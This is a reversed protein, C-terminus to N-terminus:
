RDNNIVDDFYMKLIEVNQGYQTLSLMMFHARLLLALHSNHFKFSFRGDLSLFSAICIM